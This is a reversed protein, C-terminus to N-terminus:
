KLQPAICRCCKGAIAAMKLRMGQLGHRKLNFITNKKKAMKMIKKSFPSTKHLPIAETMEYINITTLFINLSAVKYCILFNCTFNGILNATWIRSPLYPRNLFQGLIQWHSSSVENFNYKKTRNKGKLFDENKFWAGSYLLSCPSLCDGMYNVLLIPM